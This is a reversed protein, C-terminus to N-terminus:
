NGNEVATIIANAMQIWAAALVPNRPAVRARVKNIFSELQINGRRFDGREYARIAAQLAPRLQREDAAPLNASEVLALLDAVAEAPTIVEVTITDTSTSTWDCVQLVLDHTGVAASNTVRVGTAFPQADGSVHWAFQLPDNDADASSSGDLVVIAQMNDPALVTVVNGNTSLGTPSSARAMAIPPTGVPVIYTQFGLDFALATNGGFLDRTRATGGPYTDAADGWWGYTDQENASHAWITYVEGPRVALGASSLNVNVFRADSGTGAGCGRVYPIASAPIRSTALVPTTFETGARIAVIVDARNTPRCSNLNLSVSDLLGAAGVTFTQGRYFTLDRIGLSQDSAVPTVSQDLQPAATIALSHYNGCAVARVHALGVPVDMQGFIDKGWTTITGDEKLALTHFVGAAIAKVGSLDSPVNTQGHESYGWAMVRGSATLALNHYGGTAIAVVNSLGAPVTAQGFENDGWAVVTGDDRLALSHYIGGAVAVVNALGPPVNTEGRFSIGWAAVTGDSRVALTHALGAGIAKVGSLGAPTNTVYDSYSGWVVVTGDSKLGVSHFYGAAIEVVNALGPPATPRAIGPDDNWGWSFVTGDRKLITNHYTGGAIAVVDSAIVGNTQDKGWTLVDGPIQLRTVATASPIGLTLAAALLLATSPKM